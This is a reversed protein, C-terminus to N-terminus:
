TAGRVTQLIQSCRMRVYKVETASQIQCKMTQANKKASKLMESALNGDMVGQGLHTSQRIM